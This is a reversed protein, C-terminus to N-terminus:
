AAEPHILPRGRRGDLKPIMLDLIVLAPHHGQGLDLTERGDGAAKTQYGERELYVTLLAATKRDDEVVLILPGSPM